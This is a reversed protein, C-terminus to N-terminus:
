KFLAKFVANLEAVAKISMKRLARYNSIKIKEADTNADRMAARLDSGDRSVEILSGTGVMDFADSAHIVAEPRLTFTKMDEHYKFIPAFEETTSGDEPLKNFIVLIKKAPVKYEQALDNVLAITNNMTKKDPTVPVLFYDFDDFAMEIRMRTLFREVNSVGVDIIISREESQCIDVAQMAKRFDDAKLANEQGEDKNITEIPIIPADDLHPKLLQRAITTKGSSVYNIVVISLPKSM